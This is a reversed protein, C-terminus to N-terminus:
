LSTYAVFGKTWLIKGQSDAKWYVAATVDVIGGRRKDFRFIRISEDEDCRGMSRFRMAALAGVLTQESSGPPFRSALRANFEPSLALPLRQQEPTRPCAGWYGGSATVGQLIEPTDNSGCGSFWAMAALSLVLTPSSGRMCPCLLAVAALRGSGTRSLSGSLRAWATM